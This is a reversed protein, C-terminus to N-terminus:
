RQFHGLIGLCVGDTVVAAFTVSAGFDFNLNVTGTGNSNM